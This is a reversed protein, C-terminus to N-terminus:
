AAHACACSWVRAWRPYAIFLVMSVVRFVKVWDTAWLASVVSRRRAPRPSGGPKGGRVRRRSSSSRLHTPVAYWRRLRQLAHSTRPLLWSLMLVLVIAVKFLLLTVLLSQYYDMRRACNTRTITVVDVLFVKLVDLFAAFSTPWPIEYVSNASAIIQMMSIGVKLMGQPLLNRVAFLVALLAALFL